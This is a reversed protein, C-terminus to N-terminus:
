NLSVSPKSCSLDALLKSNKPQVIAMRRSVPIIDRRLRWDYISAYYLIRRVYGRTEDFPITELWVDPEMCGTRPLWSSVSGPGANYAATALTINGNFRDVMQKLYATGIPINADAKLLDTTRLNRWGINRATEHGTAPMVQMLGLAGSPSRADEMFASEARVLAFVWSLDLGRKQAYSDLDKQYPTPFRLVLDDFAKAKGMTMIVRDYWGWNSAIMAAIQMQYTTMNDLAYQWERRASYIMGLSFLERARVMGPSESIKQWAEMDEPLPHHNMSYSIGLRDAAMFGYYDRLDTIKRYMAKAADPKGTEELARGRWYIWQGRTLEDQPPIGSTWDLIRQWDYDDLAARLRWGFVDEDVRSDDIDDLLTKAMPHNQQTARVALTYKMESIQDASFEYDDKIDSWRAIAKGADIRALRNLGHLLIRRALETDEFKPHYTAHAPNNHAGIWRTVWMRQEAPLRNGLYSALGTEGEDMALGIRQWVLADSMLKSNYLREFAPDCQEPQSHGYLWVTRTDELLYADNGTRIRALLQYCRLTIDQQPTYNELFTKWHGRRALVKLWSRRLDNAMPLNDYHRLFGEIEDGNLKWLRARLYNYLLYPYLPYDRLQATLQKFRTLNGSRLSRDAEVFMKRQEDITVAPSLGPACACSMAALLLGARCVRAM